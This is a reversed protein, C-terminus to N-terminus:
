CRLDVAPKEMTLERWTFLILGLGAMALYIIFNSAFWDNQEGKELMIQLAGLGITM